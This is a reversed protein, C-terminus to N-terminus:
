GQVSTDNNERAISLRYGTPLNLWYGASTEVSQLLEGDQDQWLGLIATIEGCLFTEPLADHVGGTCFAESNAILWLCVHRYVTTPPTHLERIDVVRQPQSTSSAVCILLFLSVGAKVLFHEIEQPSIRSVLM